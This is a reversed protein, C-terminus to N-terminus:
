SEGKWPYPYKKRGLARAKKRDMGSKVLTYVYKGRRSIAKYQEPHAQQWLQMLRRHNAKTAPKWRSYPNFVRSARRHRFCTVINSSISKVPQGCKWCLRGRLAECHAKLNALNVYANPAAGLKGQAQWRGICAPSVKVVKAAKIIPMFETGELARRKRGIIQGIRERSLGLDRAIESLSQGAKFQSQIYANRADFTIM